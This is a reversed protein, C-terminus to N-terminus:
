FLSMLKQKFYLLRLKLGHSKELTHLRTEREYTIDSVAKYFDPVEVKPDGTGDYKAVKPMKYTLPTTEKFELEEDGDDDIDIYQDM